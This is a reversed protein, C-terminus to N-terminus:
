ILGGPVFFNWNSSEQPAGLGYQAGHPGPGDPVLEFVDFPGSISFRNYFDCIRLM